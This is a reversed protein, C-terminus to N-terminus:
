SEPGLSSLIQHFTDRDNEYVAAERFTFMLYCAIYVNGIRRMALSMLHLVDEDTNMRVCRFKAGAEKPGADTFFQQWSAHLGNFVDDLEPNNDAPISYITLAVQLDNEDDHLRLKGDNSERWQEPFNMAAGAAIAVRKWGAPAQYVSPPTNKKKSRSFLGM